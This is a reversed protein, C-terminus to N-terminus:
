DQQRRRVGWLNLGVASVVCISAFVLPIGTTFTSIVISYESLCHIYILKSVNTKVFEEM